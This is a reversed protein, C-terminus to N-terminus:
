YPIFIKQNTLLGSPEKTFLLYIGPTLHDTPIILEVNDQVYSGTIQRHINILTHFYRTGPPGLIRLSKGETLEWQLSSVMPLNETTDTECPYSSLDGPIIGVPRLNELDLGPFDSGYKYTRYVSGLPVYYEWVLKLEPNFELIRGESGSTIFYNGNSLVEVSSTYPSNINLEGNENIVLDPTNPGFARDTELIYRGMADIPLDIIPMDSFDKGPRALGNNFIILKGKHEGFKIWNPNHQFYLRRDEETGRGYNAPNGWRYAIDGGIGLNGGTHGSSENPTTSHDVIVVESLLRFSLAIQDLEENYDFGNIMFIDENEGQSLADLNILEPHDAVNGFNAKTSDREQIAHDFPNWEWVVESDSNIEIIVDAHRRSGHKSLDLGLSDLEAASLIRYAKCLFNGNNMKVLDYDPYLDTEALSISRIISGSWRQETIARRGKDSSILTGDKTLKVDLNYGGSNVWKNVVKGCNDILYAVSSNRKYVLTYGDLADQTLLQVGSQANLTAFAFTLALAGLLYYPASFIHFRM